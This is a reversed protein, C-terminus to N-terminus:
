RHDTRTDADVYELILHRRRADITVIRARIESHPSLTDLTVGKPLVEKPLFGDVPGGISVIAGKEVIRVVIGRYSYGIRLDPWNICWMPRTRYGYELQELNFLEVRESLENGASQFEICERDDFPGVVSTGDRFNIQASPEPAKLIAGVITRPVNFSISGVNRRDNINAGGVTLSPKNDCLIDGCLIRGGFFELVDWTGLEDLHTRLESIRQTPKPVGPDKPHQEIGLFVLIAELLNALKSEGTPLTRVLAEYTVVDARKSVESPIRLKPNYFVMLRRMKIESGGRSVHFDELLKAKEDLIRFIPGANNPSALRREQIVDEGELHISGSWNKLEIVIAQTPSTIVFDIERRRKKIWDEVRVGTHISWGLGLIKSSIEKHAKYEADRGAAIAPEPPRTVGYKKVLEVRANLKEIQEGVTKRYLRRAAHSASRIRSSIIGM